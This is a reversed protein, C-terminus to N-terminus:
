LAIVNRAAIRDATDNDSPNWDLIIAITRTHMPLKESAMETQAAVCIFSVIFLFIFTKTSDAEFSRVSGIIIACLTESSIRLSEENAFVPGALHIKHFREVPSVGRIRLFTLHWPRACGLFGLNCGHACFFAFVAANKRLRHSGESVVKVCCAVARFVTDCKEHKFYRIWNLM